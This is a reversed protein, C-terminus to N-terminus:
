MGGVDSLGMILRYALTELTGKAVGKETCWLLQCKLLKNIIRLIEENEKANTNSSTLKSTIADVEQESFGKRLAKAESELRDPFEWEQKTTGEIEEEEGANAGADEGAKEDAKVELHIPRAISMLYDSLEKRLLGAGMCSALLEPRYLPVFHTELVAASAALLYDRSQNKSELNWHLGSTAILRMEFDDHMRIEYAKSNGSMKQVVQTCRHEFIEITMNLDEIFLLAQSKEASSSAEAAKANKQTRTKPEKTPKKIRKAVRYEQIMKRFDSQPFDIARYDTVKENLHVTV